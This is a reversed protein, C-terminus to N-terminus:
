CMKSYNNQCISLSLFWKKFFNITRVNKESTLTSTLNKRQINSISVKNLEWWELWDVSCLFHLKGNLIEENKHLTFILILYAIVGKWLIETPIVLQQNQLLLKTWIMIFFFHCWVETLKLTQTKEIEKVKPICISIFHFIKHGMFTWSMSNKTRGLLWKRFPQKRFTLSVFVNSQYFSDYNEKTSAMGPGDKLGSFVRIIPWVLFFKVLLDFSSCLGNNRPYKSMFIKKFNCSKCIALVFRHLETCNGNNCCERWRSQM